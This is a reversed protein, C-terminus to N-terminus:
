LEGLIQPKLSKYLQTLSCMDVLMIVGESTDRQSLWDKVEAVIDRDSSTLPMNIGAFIYTGCLKNAVAQISTATSEGQA